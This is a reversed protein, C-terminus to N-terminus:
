SSQLLNYVSYSTKILIVFLDINVTIVHATELEIPSRTRNMAIQLIQKSDKSLMTWNSHFIMDSLDISKLKVENGYWCYLFSQLTMILLYCISACFETSLIDVKILQFLSLCLLLSSGFIQSFITLYLTRNIMEALQYICNHHRVFRQLTGQSNTTVDNLRFLLIELQCYIQTLVGFFLTDAAGHVLSQVFVAALQFAFTLPFLIESTYNYPIWGKYTLRGHQFNTRLSNLVTMSVSTEILITYRLTTRRVRDDYKMQIREEEINSTACPEELFMDMLDIIEKRRILMNTLKCFGICMAILINSVAAFEDMNNVTSM